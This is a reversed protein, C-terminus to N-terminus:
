DTNTVSTISVGDALDVAGPATASVSVVIHSSTLNTNDTDQHWVIDGVLMGRNGGDTIFGSTDVVSAADVSRHTWVQPGEAIGTAVLLNLNGPIYAM